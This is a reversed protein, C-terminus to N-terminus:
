QVSFSSVGVLVGAARSDRENWHLVDSCLQRAEGSIGILSVTLLLRVEVWTPVFTLDSIAAILRFLLYTLYWNGPILWDHIGSFDHREMGYAGVVGDWLDRSVTWSPGIALLLTLWWLLRLSRSQLVLTDRRM